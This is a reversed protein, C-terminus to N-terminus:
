GSAALREAVLPVLERMAEAGDDETTSLTFYLDGILVGAEHDYDEPTAVAERDLVYAKDGADLDEVEDLDDFFGRDFEYARAGGGVGVLLDWTGDGRWQCGASSETALGIDLPVGPGEIAM